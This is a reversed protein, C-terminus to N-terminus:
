NIMNFNIIRHIIKFENDFDGELETSGIYMFDRELSNCVEEEISDNLDSDKSFIHVDLMTKDGTRGEFCNIGDNVSLIYAVVPLDNVRINDWEQQISKAKNVLNTNTALLKYIQEKLKLRNRM